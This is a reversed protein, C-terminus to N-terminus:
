FSCNLIGFSRILLYKARPRRRLFNLIGDYLSQLKVSFALSLLFSLWECPPLRGMECPQPFPIQVTGGRWM